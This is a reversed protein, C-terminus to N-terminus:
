AALKVDIGEELAQALTVMRGSGDAAPLKALAHIRKTSGDDLIVEVWGEGAGSIFRERQADMESQIKKGMARRLLDADGLSYGALSRAIEMVQEQYIMVGNTESLIGEMEPHLYDVLEEGSKVAAYTPIQEMPGPRYLSILAILENIGEVKLDKMARCMGASELQFVGFGDGGALAAYTKEDRYSLDEFDIEEGHAERVFGRAGHIADLNKLGLFDFKVLGAAEVAKMEFSTALNGHQDLHVPVIESIVQDSIIVGAAHTSVHSYLGEIRLATDFIQRISDDATELEMALGEEAMADALSVPNSPNQPIMKAYRDVVPYPVQMVRGVARVVARAQLTGVAAIHAVRDAGYKKRVYEIVEERREQCFDIDFDPLSVREPNLFREFLLGFDMPDIDTIDLAYAVLSGAGSGRGPGVPIDNEKAWGIFDSVILFYGSFGMKVIIDLEYDLREDYTQRDCGPRRALRRLLGQKSNERLLEEETQGESVPFAPTHPHVPEIMFNAKRAIELTNSIANPLDSFREIMEAPTAIHLGQESRPRDAEAKYSKSAICLFTDHADQMDPTTYAARSTAVLPLGRSEAENRLAAEQPAPESSNREIEVYVDFGASYLRDFFAPLTGNIAAASALGRVGGTLVILERAEAGVLEIAHSLSIPDSGKSRTNIANAIKLMAGYGAQSKAYFVLDGSAGQDNLAFTAATLPQVGHSRLEKANAMVGSLTDLDAIGAAPLSHEKCFRGLDATKVSGFGISFPSVVRLPVYM